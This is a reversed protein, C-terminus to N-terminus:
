PTPAPGRAGSDLGHPRGAQRRHGGQRTAERGLIAELETLAAAEEGLLCNLHDRCISADMISTKNRAFNFIFSAIENHRDIYIM